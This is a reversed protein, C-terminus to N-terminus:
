FRSVTAEFLVLVSLGGALCLIVIICHCICVLSNIVMQNALKQDATYGASAVIHSCVLLVLQIM